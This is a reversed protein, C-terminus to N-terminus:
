KLKIYLSLQNTSINKDYESHIATFQHAKTQKVVSRRALARRNQQQCQPPMVRRDTIHTLQNWGAHVAWPLTRAKTTLNKAFIKLM